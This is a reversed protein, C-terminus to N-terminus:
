RAHRGRRRLTVITGAAAAAFFLLWLGVRSEDGTSASATSSSGSGSSSGSSSGGSGDSSSTDNSGGADPSSIQEDGNVDSKSTNTITITGTTDNEDLSVAGEGGVAYAFSTKDIKNGDADTEYIYYTIPDLGNEGGLAM